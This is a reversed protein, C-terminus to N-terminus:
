LHFSTNTANIYRHFYYTKEIFTNLDMYETCIYLIATFCIHGLKLYLFALVLLNYMKQHHFYIKKKNTTQLKTSLWDVVVMTMEVTKNTLDM